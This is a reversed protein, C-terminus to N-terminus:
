SKGPSAEYIKLNSVTWNPANEITETQTIRIFKARTPAFAITTRGGTGKGEAVPKGWNTGDLSVEVRYGHPYPLAPATAPAAGRGGGRGAAPSPSDFEIETLLSPQPM